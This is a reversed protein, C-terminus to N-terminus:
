APIYMREDEVLCEILVQSVGLLSIADVDSYELVNCLLVIYPEFVVNEMDVAGFIEKKIVVCYTGYDQM